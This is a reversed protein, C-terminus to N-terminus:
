LHAEILLSRISPGAPQRPEPLDSFILYATNIDPVTTMQKNSEHKHHKNARLPERM